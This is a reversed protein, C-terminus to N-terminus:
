QLRFVFNGPGKEYLITGPSTVAEGDKTLQMADNVGMDPRAYIVWTDLGEAAAEPGVPAAPYTKYRMIGLLPYPYQTLFIYRGRDELLPLVHSLFIPFDARERFTRFEEPEYWHHELDRVASFLLETGMRLDSLIWLSGCAILLLLRPLTSWARIKKWLFAFIVLTLLLLYWVVNAFVGHPPLELFLQETAIPNESFVPGWVFNISYPSFTDFTWYSRLSNKMRDWLTWHLLDISQIQIDSGKPVEIGLTIPHPDWEPFWRADIKVTVPTASADMMFSLKTVANEEMDAAHWVLAAELTEAARYTIAIGDIPNRHRIERFIRTDSKAIIHLGGVEAKTESQGKVRWEPGVQSGLFNWQEVTAAYGGSPLLVIVLSFLISRLTM